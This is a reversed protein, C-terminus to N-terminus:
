SGDHRSVNVFDYMKILLLTPLLQSFAYAYHVYAFLFWKAEIKGNWSQEKGEEYEEKTQILLLLLL